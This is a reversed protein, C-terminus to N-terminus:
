VEEIHWTWAGCDQLHPLCLGADMLAAGSATVGLEKIRYVKAESTMVWNNHFM